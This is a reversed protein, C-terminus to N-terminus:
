MSAAVALGVWLATMIGGSIAAATVNKQRATKEFGRQYSLWDVNEPMYDAQPESAAAIGVTVGAGLLSFLGGSIIGGVVWGATNHDAEADMVGLNYSESASAIVEDSQNGGGDDAFLGVPVVFSLLLVIAIVRKM